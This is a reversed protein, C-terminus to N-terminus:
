CAARSSHQLLFRYSSGIIEGPDAVVLLDFHRLCIGFFSPPPPPHVFKMQIGSLCILSSPHSAQLRKCAAGVLNAMATLSEGAEFVLGRVPYESLLAVEVDKRRTYGYLAKTPAREVAFPAALYYAQVFLCYIVSM